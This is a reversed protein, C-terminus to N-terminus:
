QNLAAQQAARWKLGSAISEIEKGGSSQRAQRAQKYSPKPQAGVVQPSSKPMSASLKDAKALEEKAGALIADVSNDDPM